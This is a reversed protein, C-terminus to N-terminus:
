PRGKSTKAAEASEVAQAGNTRDPISLWWRTPSSPAIVTRTEHALISNIMEIRRVNCQFGTMGMSICESAVRQNEMTEFRHSPEEPSPPRNERSPGSSSCGPEKGRSSSSREKRSRTSCVSGTRAPRPLREPQGRWLVAAARKQWKPLWFESRNGLVNNKGNLCHKKPECM